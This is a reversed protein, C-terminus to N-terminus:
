STLSGTCSSGCGATCTFCHEGLAIERQSLLHHDFDKLHEPYGESLGLGLAQNFDCDYLRGDWGVSILHRCMLGELTKPNFAESLLRQYAELGNKAKLTKRFRGLPANALVFLRNFRIGYRKALEQRYTKELTAQPPPLEPGKPNFVLNLVLGTESKGYGLENLLALAKLAKKFTGTGRVQDVNEELYCPLSAIIEVQNERFFQPLDELGEEFFTALNTRVMVKVGLRRAERVLYRFHPNLEPAGGTLDLKPIKESELVRLVLDVTKRDMQEPRNPGAELHCHQCSLNCRYGLNVQLTEIEVAKLPGEIFPAIREAFKM